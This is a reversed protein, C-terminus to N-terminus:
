KKPKRQRCKLPDQPTLEKQPRGLPLARLRRGLEGELHTVFASSGWPRGRLTAEKLHKVATTDDAQRLMQKWEAPTFAARWLKLDLLGSPDQGTVHASASSWVYDWACEVMQARVPNREIYRLATWLHPPELACSFFRNQWQHGCSANKLNLYQSYRAHASGLARALSDPAEPILVWHVHNTMLCYGMMHVGYKRNYSEMLSLYVQRDEECFFVAQRNNGRQTVHHPVHVAVARAIRPV